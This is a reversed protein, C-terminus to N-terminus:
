ATIGEKSGIITGEWGMYRLFPIRPIKTHTGIRVVPFGLNQRGELTTATKRILQPQCGLIDTAEEPTLFPKDMLAISQLTLPQNKDPTTTSYM